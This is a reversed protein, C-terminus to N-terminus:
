ESNNESLQNRLSKSFKTVDMEDARKRGKEIYSQRLSEHNYFSMVADAFMKASGPKVIIAADGVSEPMSTSDVVIVPCSAAMSEIAVMCFSEVRSANILCLSRHMNYALTKKDIPGLIQIYKHLGMEKAVAEFENWQAVSQGGAVKLTWEIEPMCEHLIKLCRLCTENDKHIQTSSVLMLNSHSTLAESRSLQSESEDLFDPDVSIYLLAPNSVKHKMRHQAADELYLSEFINLEAFRCALRADFRKVMMELSDSIPSQFSLLNIHYVTVPCSSFLHYNFSFVKDLKEVSSEYLFYFKSLMYRFSARCKPMFRKEEVNDLVELLPQLAVSTDNEGVYVLVKNAEDKSIAKIVQVLVTLGGGPRISGAYIGIRM